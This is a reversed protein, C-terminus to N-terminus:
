FSAERILQFNLDTLFRMKTIYKKSNVTYLNMSFENRSVPHKPQLKRRQLVSNTNTRELGTTRRRARPKQFNGNTRKLDDYEQECPMETSWEISNNERFEGKAFEEDLNFTRKIFSERQQQKPPKRLTNDHKVFKFKTFSLKTEFFKSKFSVSFQKFTTKMRTTFTRSEKLLFLNRSNNLDKSQIKIQFQNQSNKKKLYNM